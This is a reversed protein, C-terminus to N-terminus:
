GQTQTIVKAFMGGLDKYWQPGMHLNDKPSFRDGHLSAQFVDVFSVRDRFSSQSSYATTTTPQQQQHHHHHQQQSQLLLDRVGKNWAKTLAKTQVYDGRDAPATNALWIIHVCESELLEL